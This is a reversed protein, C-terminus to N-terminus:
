GATDAKGSLTTPDAQADDKELALNGEALYAAELKADKGQALKFYQAIVKQADAGLMVAAQGLVVSEMATRDKAVKSKAAENIGKLAEAMVDARGLMHALDHRLLLIEFHGPYLVLAKRTEELAQQQAVQSTTEQVVAMVALPRGDEGAVPSYSLDIYTPTLGRGRDLM